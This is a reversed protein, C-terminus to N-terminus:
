EKKQNHRRTKLFTLDGDINQLAIVQYNLRRKYLINAVTWEKKLISQDSLRDAFSSPRKRTTSPKLPFCSFSDFRYWVSVLNRKMSVPRQFYRHTWGHVRKVVSASIVKWLVAKRFHSRKRYCFRALYFLGSHNDRPM